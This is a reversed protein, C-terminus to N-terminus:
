ITKIYIEELFAKISDYIEKHSGYKQRELKTQDYQTLYKMFDFYFVKYKEGFELSTPVYKLEKNEYVFYNPYEEFYERMYNVILHKISEIIDKFMPLLIRINNYKNIEKIVFEEISLFTKNEM